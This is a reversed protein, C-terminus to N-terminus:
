GSACLSLMRRRAKLFIEYSPHGGVLRVILGRSRDLIRGPVNILWARIAKLRKSVWKGGLVLRQIATQFNLSLIMIQWWAANAGFLASPLQGGALDRKMISHAEESKGCRERYWWILEDGPLDRNTVVGTVKYKVRNIDMTQFPLESEKTQKRKKTRKEEVFPERIAIYRYVPGKKSEGVWSPVFCVEAYEQNTEHLRGDVKRNLRFWESKAVESVAKKFEQTVDTGVAFEIVGFRKNKAEACYRLLKEVYGASDSRLFVIKVGPPLLDLTQEFPGFLEYDAPVNGDRFESYVVLGQEAWYINLPQYARFKKYCFLSQKKYTEILTADMDLTAIEKPAHRQVWAILGANVRVLGLLGDTPAPIFAKGEKRLKEQSEDHFCRLYDLLATASPFTRTREKRWRRRLARRERRTRAHEETRRVLECLGTDSELITLDDVCDGGAINLLVLSKVIQEDTWGQSPGHVKLHEDILRGFGATRWFDLYIGLGAFGTMGVERNDDEYQFPLVGQTM